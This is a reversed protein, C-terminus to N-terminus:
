SFLAAFSEEVWDKLYDLSINVKDGVRPEVEIERDSLFNKGIIM